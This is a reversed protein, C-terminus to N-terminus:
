LSVNYFMKLMELQIYIDEIVRRGPDSNKVRFHFIDPPLSYKSRDWDQPTLMDARSAAIIGINQDRFFAGLVVDEFFWGQDWLVQKNQVLLEIMDPSFILGCGSAFNIGNHNGIVASYCNTKPLTQLFPFLRPFVYFSSLNTRVVYDFEDLRPAMYEMALLTKNLMGPNINTSTKCWIVDDIIECQTDLDPNAKVFYAEVHDPDLHMYARWIKQFELYVQQDDSAVILVLIKMDKNYSYAQIQGTLGFLLGFLFIFRALITKIYQQRNM